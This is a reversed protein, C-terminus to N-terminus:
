WFGSRRTVLSLSHCLTLLDYIGSNVYYFARTDFHVDHNYSFDISKLNDLEAQAVFFTRGLHLPTSSDRRTWGVISARSVLKRVFDPPFDKQM